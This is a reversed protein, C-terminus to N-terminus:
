IPGPFCYRSIGGIEVLPTTMDQTGVSQGDKGLDIKVTISNKAGLIDTAELTVNDGDAVWPM